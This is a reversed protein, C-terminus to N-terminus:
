MLRPRQDKIFLFPVSEGRHTLEKKASNFASEKDEEELVAYIVYNGFVRVESADLKRIELPAYSSIFARQNQKMDRLYEGVSISFRKASEEDTCHFVGIESIDNVDTSYVVSCDTPSSINRFLFGIHEDDYESFDSNNTFSKVMREAIDDCDLDDRYIEKKSCGSVTISVFILLLLFIKKM